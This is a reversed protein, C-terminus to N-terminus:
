MRGDPEHGCLFEIRVVHFINGAGLERQPWSEGARGTARNFMGQGCCYGGLSFSPPFAWAGPMGKYFTGPAPQSRYLLLVGGGPLVRHQRVVVTNAKTSFTRGSMKWCMRRWTFKGWLLLLEGLFPPATFFWLGQEM